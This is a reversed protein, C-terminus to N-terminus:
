QKWKGKRGGGGGRQPDTSFRPSTMTTEFEVGPFWHMSQFSQPLTILKTSMHFQTQNWGTNSGGEEGGGGVLDASTKLNRPM